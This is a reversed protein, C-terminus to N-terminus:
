CFGKLRDDRGKVKNMGLFRDLVLLPCRGGMEEEMKKRRHIGEVLVRKNEFANGKAQLYLELHVRRDTKGPERYRFLLRRLVRMGRMWLVRSPERAERTGKRKGVGSRRGRLRAERARSRSHIEVPKKIILGDHILERVDVGTNRPM